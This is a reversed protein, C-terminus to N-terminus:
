SPKRYVIEGNSDTGVFVLSNAPEDGLYEFHRLSQAVYIGPSTLSKSVSSHSGVTVGNVIRIGANLVSASGIYVNNGIDIRGDIRYRGPGQSAHKYGHTWLQSRAGAITSYDGIVITSTCDVLHSSTIKSLVGLRLMAPGISTPHSARYVVNGRGFAAVEALSLSIPGAIRNFKDLYSQSRMVLRRCRIVNGLHISTKDQMFLREVAIISPGIYASRAVRHGLINLLFPKIVPPMLLTVGATAFKKLM